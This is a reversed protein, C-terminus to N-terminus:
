DYILSFLLEKSAEIPHKLVISPNDALFVINCKFTACVLSTHEYPKRLYSDIWFGVSFMSVAVMLFNFKKLLCRMIEGELM